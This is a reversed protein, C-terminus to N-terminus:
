YLPFRINRVAKHAYLCAVMRAAMVMTFTFYLLTLHPMVLNVSSGRTDLDANASTARELRSLPVLEVTKAPTPAAFM